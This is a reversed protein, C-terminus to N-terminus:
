PVQSDWIKNVREELPLQEVLHAFSPLQQSFLSESLMRNLLDEVSTVDAPIIRLQILERLMIQHKQLLEESRKLATV